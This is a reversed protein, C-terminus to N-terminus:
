LRANFEGNHIRKTLELFKKSNKFDTECRFNKISNVFRCCFCLNDLGGIIGPSIKNNFGYLISQKHDITAQFPNRSNKESYDINLNTYYCKGTKIVENKVRNTNRRVEKRYKEFEELEDDSKFGYKLKITNRAKNLFEKVQSIHEVGYRKFVTAKRKILALKSSKKISEGRKANVEEFNNNIHDLCAKRVHSLNFSSKVGYKAIFSNTLKNKIEENRLAHEVGYRKVMTEKIKKNIESYDLDKKSDSVRKSMEESNNLCDLSCFEAYGKNYTYYKTEKGCVLCKGEKEKKIHKDYYEKTTMNHCPKLHYKCFHDIVYSTQIGCEKCFIKPKEM